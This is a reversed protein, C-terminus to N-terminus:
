ARRESTVEFRENIFYTQWTQALRVDISPTEPLWSAPTHQAVWETYKLFAQPISVIAEGADQGYAFCGPYDLAWAVSRGTMGNDLGVSLIM